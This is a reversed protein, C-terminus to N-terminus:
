VLCKRLKSEKWKLFIWNWSWVIRRQVWCLIEWCVNHKFNKNESEYKFVPSFVMRIGWFLFSFVEMELVESKLKQITQRRSGNNINLVQNAHECDPVSFWSNYITKEVWFSKSDWKPSDPTGINTATKVFISHITEKQETGSGSTTLMQLSQVVISKTAISQNM